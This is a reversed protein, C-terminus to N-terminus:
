LSCVCVCVCVCVGTLTKVRVKSQHQAWVQLGAQDAYGTPHRAGLLEGSDASLGEDGFLIGCTNVGSRDGKVDCSSNACLCEM